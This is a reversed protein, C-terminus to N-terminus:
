ADPPERTEILWRFGVCLYGLAVSLLIGVGFFRPAVSFTIPLPVYAPNNYTNLRENGAFVNILDGLNTAIFLLMMALPVLAGVCFTRLMARGSITGTISLAALVVIAAISLMRALDPPAEIILWLVNAVVAITLLLAALSFQLPSKKM